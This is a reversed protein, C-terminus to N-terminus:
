PRKATMNMNMNMNMISPAAGYRSFWDMLEPFRRKSAALDKVADSNQMEGVVSQLNIPTAGMQVLRSMASDNNEKTWSGSADTVIFVHYGQAILSTAPYVLCYDTTFGTLLVKKRGTRQVAAAFRPDSMANFYDLRDIVPEQPFTATIAPVLGGAPGNAGGGTTTLVVPLKFMKALKALAETNNRLLVTDMSQVGLLLNTQNDIFLVAANDPSLPVLYAERPTRASAALTLGLLTAALPLRLVRKILSM